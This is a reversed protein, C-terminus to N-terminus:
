LQLLLDMVVLLFVQGSREVGTRCSDGAIPHHSPPWHSPTTPQASHRTCSPLWSATAASNATAMRHRVTWSQSSNKMRNWREERIHVDLMRRAMHATTSYNCKCNHSSLIVAVWKRSPSSKSVVASHCAVTGLSTSMNYTMTWDHLDYGGTPYRNLLSYVTEEASDLTHPQRVHRLILDRLCWTNITTPIM